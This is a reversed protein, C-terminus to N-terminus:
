DHSGNGGICKLVLSCRLASPWAIHVAWVFHNPITSHPRMNLQRVLLRVSHRYQTNGETDIDLSLILAIHATAGPLLQVASVYGETKSVRTVCDDLCQTALSVRAVLGANSDALLVCNPEPATCM